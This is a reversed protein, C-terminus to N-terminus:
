RWAAPAAALREVLVSVVLAWWDLLHHCEDLVVTGLGSSALQDVLTATRPGLLQARPVGVDEGTGLSRRLARVHRGIERGARKADGEETARVRAEAAEPGVETAVEAVWLRRAAARLEDDAEGPNGLLQYTVCRLPVAAAPDDSTFTAPDAGFQAVSARWQDRIATTPALALTPRGVQRALELGILTKGAGPPACLHWRGDAVHGALELLHRQSPRWEFRPALGDWSM